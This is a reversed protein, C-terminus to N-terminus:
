ILLNHALASNVKMEYKFEIRNKDRMYACISSKELM